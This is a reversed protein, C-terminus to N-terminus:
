RLVTMAVSVISQCMTGTRKRSYDMSLSAIIRIRNSFVLLGTAHHVFAIIIGTQKAGHEVPNQGEISRWARKLVNRASSCITPGKVKRVLIIEYRARKLSGDRSLNFENKGHRINSRPSERAERQPLSATRSTRRPFLSAPFGASHAM